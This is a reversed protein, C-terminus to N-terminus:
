CVESMVLRPESNPSLPIGLSLSTPTLFIKRLDLVLPLTLPMPGSVWIIVDDKEHEFKESSSASSMVLIDYILRFHLKPIEGELRM